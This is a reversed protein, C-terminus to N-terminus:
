IRFSDNGTEIARRHRTLEDKLTPTMKVDDFKNAWGAINLDPIIVM